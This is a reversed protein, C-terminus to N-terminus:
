RIREDRVLKRGIYPCVVCSLYCYTLLTLFASRLEFSMFTRVICRSSFFHETCTSKSLSPLFCADVGTVNVFSLKWIELHQPVLQQQVYLPDADLYSCNIRVGVFSPEPIARASNGLSISGWTIPM